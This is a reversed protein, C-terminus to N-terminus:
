RLRKWLTTRSMGLRQAAAAKNGGTQALAERIRRKEEDESSPSRYYRVLPPEGATPPAPAREVELIEPLLHRRLIVGGDSQVAAFELANSLQRVNGPWDYTELASMAERSIRLAPRKYRDAFQAALRSALVPVDDRRERLPPVRLPVVRLRYFLDERFEGRRVMAPLDRHTAAIVRVDIRRVHNEGLRV